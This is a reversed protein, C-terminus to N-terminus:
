LLRWYWRLFQNGFFFAVMAMGGLFVGFPMPFGRLAVVASRWARQQADHWSEHRREVRRQTRKIWVVGVTWLGFLSGAISAAFLTFITLRVGLFAGVMAM